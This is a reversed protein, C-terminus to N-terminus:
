KEEEEDTFGMTSVHEAAGDLFQIEVIRGGHSWSEVTVNAESVPQMDDFVGGYDEAEADEEGETPVAYMEETLSDSEPKEDPPGLIERAQELSMGEHLKEVNQETLRGYGRSESSSTALVAVVVAVAVVALGVGILAKKM